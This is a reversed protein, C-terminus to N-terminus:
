DVAELWEECFALHYNEADAAYHEPLGEKTTVMYHMQGVSIIYGQTGVLFIDTGKSYYDGNTVKVKQGVKFRM